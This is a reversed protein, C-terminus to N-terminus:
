IDKEIRKMRKVMNKSKPNYGNNSEPGEVWEFGSFTKFEFKQQAAIQMLIKMQKLTLNDIIMGNFNVKFM